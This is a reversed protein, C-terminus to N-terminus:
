VHACRGYSVSAGEKGPMGAQGGRGRTMLRMFLSGGKTAGGGGEKAGPAHRGSSGAAGGAAGAGGRGQSAQAAAAAATGDQELVAAASRYASSGAILADLHQTLHPHLDALLEVAAHGELRGACRLAPLCAQM